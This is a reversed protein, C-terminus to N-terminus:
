EEEGSVSTEQALGLAQRQGEFWLLIRTAIEKWELENLLEHYLEPYVGLERSESSIREFIRQSQEADVLRDTGAVLMLLPQRILEAREYLDSFAQNAETFWRATAVTRNLPDKKYVEVVHKDHSLNEPGLETPMAFTPRLRSMVNGAVEKWAPIKVTFGTMPSTVAFASVQEPRRLAYRLTILGGNSHGFVFLPGHAQDWRQELLAVLRELDRVYDDYRDVHAAVGASRGHGRVDIAMVGYGARALLTAFHDYRGSHEGYGHTLAIRGRWTGEHPAWSQWFLKTGDWSDLFGEDRLIDERRSPKAPALDDWRLAEIEEQTLAHPGQARKSLVVEEQEHSPGKVQPRM